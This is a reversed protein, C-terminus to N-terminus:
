RFRRQMSPRIKLFGVYLRELCWLTPKNSCLRGLRRWEPLELWLKVFALAGSCLNDQRDRVHFRAMALQCTLGEGLCAQEASSVDTWEINAAGRSRQYVAIEKRCLPCSGDYYVTVLAM